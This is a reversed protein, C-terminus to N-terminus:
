FAVREINEEKGDSYKRNGNSAGFAHWDFTINKNQPTSLEITFGEVSKDVVKYTGNIFENATVTIIPQKKYTEKFKVEISTEGKLIVAEGVTDEGFDVEGIIELSGNLIWSDVENGSLGLNNKILEIQSQQNQIAQVIRWSSIDSVRLYGDSDETVLGPMVEQVQQAIPGISEEGTPTFTYKKIEIDLLDNLVTPADVINEKLRKDSSCSWTLGGSAPQAECSAGDDLLLVDDDSGNIELVSGPSTTGIGVKGNDTVIFNGAVDFRAEPSMTGIGIRNTTDNVYFVGSNPTGESDTTYFTSPSNQNNYTTSIWDSSRQSSSIRVEDIIGDFLESTGSRINAGVVLNDRLDTDGFWNGNDSGNSTTKTEESDNLYLSYSTDNSSISIYYWTDTSLTSDGHIHNLTGDNKQTIAIKGDDNIRTQLFRDNTGEDGSMLLTGYASVTDAKIWLDITGVSDSSSYDSVSEKIYDNTGDYSISDGIKGTESYTPSDGISSFDTSTSTSDYVNGSSEGMHWVGAYDSDWVGTVDEQSTTVNSDGYCVYISKDVSSSLSPIRIHAVLEGTSADYKEIEHDLQNTSSCDSTSSFIMDAPVTVSGSAGGSSDTNEIHGSNSTTALDSDTVSYLLPYDTLDADVKTNDITIEKSYSFSGSNSDGIKASGLVELAYDASNKGVALRANIDDWYLSSSEDVQSGDWFMISGTSYDSKTDSLGLFDTSGQITLDVWQSGDYIYLNDDDSDYYVRGETQTSSATPSFVASDATLAGNITVDGQYDVVFANSGSVQMEILNGSGGTKNVHIASNTTADTQISGAGIRMYESADIGALYKSNYAYAVASFQIRNGSAPFVEEYTDDSGDADLRIELYLDDRNFNQLDTDSALDNVSGMKINFISDTVDVGSHNETYLETGGTASDFIKVQFNCSNGCAGSFNTGDSDTLKGGVSLVENIGSASKVELDIYDTLFLPFSVLFLLLFLKFKNISFITKRRKSCHM